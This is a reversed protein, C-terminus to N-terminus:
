EAIKFPINLEKLRPLLEALVSTGFTYHYPYVKKPKLWDVAQLFLDVTMTYPLNAPLFAADVGAIDKMEPIAETDGAVYLRKDGYSLVYGNGSGKGHYAEGNECKHQINYAPVTKIVIEGVTETEGNKLVKGAPYGIGCDSALLVTSKAKKLKDILDTQFHYVL